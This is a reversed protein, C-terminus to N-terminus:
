LHHVRERRDISAYPPPLEDAIAEDGQSAPGADPTVGEDPIAEGDQSAPGADRHIIIRSLRVVQVGADLSRRSRRNSDYASSLRNTNMAQSPQDNALQLDQPSAPAPAPDLSGQAGSHVQVTPSIVHSSRRTREINGALIVSGRQAGPPAQVVVHRVRCVMSTMGNQARATNHQIGQIFISRRVQATRAKVISAIIIAVVFGVTSAIAVVFATGNSM